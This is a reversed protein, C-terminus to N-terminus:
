SEINGRPKERLSRVVFPMLLCLGVRWLTMKKVNEQSIISYAAALRHTVHSSAPIGVRLVEINQLHIVSRCVVRATGNEVSLGGFRIEKLFRGLKSRYIHKLHRARPGVLELFLLNDLLLLRQWPKDDVNEHASAFSINHITLSQLGNHFMHHIDEESLFLSSHLVLSPAMGGRQFRRLDERNSIHLM